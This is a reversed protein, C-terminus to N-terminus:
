RSRNRWEALAARAAARYERSADCDHVARHARNRGAQSEVANRWAALLTQYAPENMDRTM